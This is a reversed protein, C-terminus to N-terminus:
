VINILCAHLCVYSQVILDPSLLNHRALESWAEELVDIRLMIIQRKLKGVEYEPFVDIDHSSKLLQKLPFGNTDIYKYVCMVASPDILHEKRGKLKCCSVEKEVHRLLFDLYTSEM